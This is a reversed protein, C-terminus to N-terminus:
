GTREAKPKGKRRTTRRERWSACARAIIEGVKRGFLHRNVPEVEDPAGLFRVLDPLPRSSKPPEAM